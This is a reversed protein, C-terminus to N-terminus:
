SFPLSLAPDAKREAVQAVVPALQEDTMGQHKSQVLMLETQAVLHKALQQLLNAQANLLQVQTGMANLIKENASSVAARVTFYLIAIWVALAAVAGILQGFMEM